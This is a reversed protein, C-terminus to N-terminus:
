PNWRYSLSSLVLCVQLQRQPSTGAHQLIQSSKAGSVDMQLGTQIVTPFDFPM